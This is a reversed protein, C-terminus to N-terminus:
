GEKVIQLYHECKIMREAESSEHDAASHCPPCLAELNGEVDKGGFRRKIKHHIQLNDGDAGCRVCKWGDRELVRYRLVQWYADRTVKEKLSKPGDERKVQLQLSQVTVADSLVSRVSEDIGDLEHGKLPYKARYQYIAFKALSSLTFGKARAYIDFLEREEEGDFSFRVVVGM